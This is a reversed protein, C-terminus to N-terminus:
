FGHEANKETEINLCHAFMTFHSKSYKLFYICQKTKKSIHTYPVEQSINKTMLKYQSHIYDANIVWRTNAITIPTLPPGAKPLAQPSPTPSPKPFPKTFKKSM